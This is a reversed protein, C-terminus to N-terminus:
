VPLGAEARAARCGPGGVEFSRCNGPRDRYISCGCGGGVQGAFAVCASRGGAHPRAGLFPSPGVQVVTLGLRKMRKAEPKSLWVYDVGTGAGSLCCAGCELCDYVPGSWL